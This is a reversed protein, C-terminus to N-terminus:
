SSSPLRVLDARLVHGVAGELEKGVAEVDASVNCHTASGKVVVKDLPLLVDGEISSEYHVDAFYSKQKLEALLSM